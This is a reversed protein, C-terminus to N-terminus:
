ESLILLDFRDEDVFSGTETSSLVTKLTCSFGNPVGQPIDLKMVGALYSDAPISIGGEPIPGRVPYESGDQLRAIIDLQVPFTDEQLLNEAVLDLELVDGPSLIVASPACAISIFRYHWSGMDCITGDPDPDIPNGADICPSEESLSFDFIVPNILLPDM